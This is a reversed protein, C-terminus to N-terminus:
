SPTHNTFLPTISPVVNPQDAFTGVPVVLTYNGVGNRVPAFGTGSYITGNPQVIGALYRGCVVTGDSNIRRVHRGIACPGTVRSQFSTSDRGDLNSADNVSGTIDGATVCGTRLLSGGLYVED